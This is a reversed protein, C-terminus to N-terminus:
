QKYVTLDNQLVAKQYLYKYKVSNMLKWANLHKWTNRRLVLLEIKACLFVQFLKVIATYGYTYM